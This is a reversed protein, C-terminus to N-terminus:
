SCLGWEGVGYKEKTPLWPAMALRAACPGSTSRPAGATGGAESGPDRAGWRSTCVEAEEVGLQTSRPGVAAWCGVPCRISLVGGVGPGSSRPHRCEVRARRLRGVGAIGRHGSCPCWAPARPVALVVPIGTGGDRLVTSCLARCSRAWGGSEQLVWRDPFYCRPVGRKRGSEAGTQGAGWKRPAGHRGGAWPRLRPTGDLLRHGGRQCRGASGVGREQAAGAGPEGGLGAGGRPRCGPAAPVRRGRGLRPGDWGTGARRPATRCGPRETCPAARASGAVPCFADASEGRFVRRTRVTRSLTIFVPM